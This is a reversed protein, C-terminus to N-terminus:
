ACSHCGKATVFAQPVLATEGVAASSGCRQGPLKTTAQNKQEKFKCVRLKLFPGSSWDCITLPHVVSLMGPHRICQKHILLNTGRCALFTDKEIWKRETTHIAIVIFEEQSSEEWVGEM